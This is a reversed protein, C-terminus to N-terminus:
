KKKKVVKDEIKPKTEVKPKSKSKLSSEKPLNKFRDEINGVYDDPIYKKGTKEDIPFEM